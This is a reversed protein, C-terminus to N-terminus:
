SVAVCVQTMAHQLPRVGERVRRRRRHEQGSVIGERLLANDDAVVIRLRKAPTNV